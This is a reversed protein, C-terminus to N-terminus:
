VAYEGCIYAMWQVTDGRRSDVLDGTIVSIRAKM